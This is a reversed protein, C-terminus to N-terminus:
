KKALPAAMLVARGVGDFKAVARGSGDCVGGHTRHDGIRERADLTTSYECYPCAARRGALSSMETVHDTTTSLHEGAGLDVTVRNGVMDTVRGEEGSSLQVRSGVHVSAGADFASMTGGEIRVMHKEDLTVTRYIGDIKTIYRGDPTVSQVTGTYWDGSSNERTKFKDGPAFGFASMTGAAAEDGSPDTKVEASGDPKVAVETLDFKEVQTAATALNPAAANDQVGPGKQWTVSLRNGSVETIKGVSYDDLRRVRDGVKFDSAFKQATAREMATLNEGRLTIPKHEAVREMEILKERNM